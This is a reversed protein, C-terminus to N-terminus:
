ESAWESVCAHEVRWRALGERTRLGVRFFPKFVRFLGQFNGSSIEPTMEGGREGDILAALSPPRNRQDYPTHLNGPDATCACACHPISKM